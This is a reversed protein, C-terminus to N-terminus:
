VDEMKLATTAIKTVMCYTLVNLAFITWKRLAPIIIVIANTVLM